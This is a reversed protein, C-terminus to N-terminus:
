WTPVSYVPYKRNPSSSKPSKTIRVIAHSCSLNQTPLHIMGKSRPLFCIMNFAEVATLAVLVQPPNSKMCDSMEYEFHTVGMCGAYDVAIELATTERNYRAGEIKFSREHHAHSLTAASLLTILVFHTLRM